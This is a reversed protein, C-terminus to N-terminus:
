IDMKSVKKSNHIQLWKESENVMWNGLGDLFDIIENPNEIPTIACKLAQKMESRKESYYKFFIKYAPFLDRTYQNEKEIVLALGTRVIIKMIWGCCDNYLEVFFISRKKLIAAFLWRVRSYLLYTM